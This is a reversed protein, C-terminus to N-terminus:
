SNSQNNMGSYLGLFISYDNQLNLHNRIENNEDLRLVKMTHLQKTFHDYIDTRKVKNSYGVVTGELTMKLANIKIGNKTNYDYLFHNINKWM